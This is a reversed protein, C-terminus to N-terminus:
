QRTRDDNGDLETSIVISNPQPAPPGPPFHGSEARVINGRGVGSVLDAHNWRIQPRASPPALHEHRIQVSQSGPAPKGDQHPSSALADPQRSAGEHSRSPCRQHHVQGTAWGPAQGPGAWLGAWGAAWGPRQWAPGPQRGHRRHGRGLADQGNVKPAGADLAVGGARTLVGAGPGDPQPHVVQSGNSWRFRVRLRDLRLLATWTRPWCGAPGM